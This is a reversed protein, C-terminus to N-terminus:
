YPTSNKSNALCKPGKVTKKAVPLVFKPPRFSLLNFLLIKQGKDTDDM